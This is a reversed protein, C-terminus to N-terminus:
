PKYEAECAQIKGVDTGASTLCRALKRARAIRARARTIAPNTRVTGRSVHPAAPPASTGIANAVGAALVFAVVVGAVAALLSGLRSSGSVPTFVNYGAIGGWWGSM